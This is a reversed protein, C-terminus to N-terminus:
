SRLWIVDGCLEPSHERSEFVAFEGKEKKLLDDWIDLFIDQRLDALTGEFNLIKELRYFKPFIDLMFDLFKEENLNQYIKEFVFKRKKHDKCQKFLEEFDSDFNHSHKM